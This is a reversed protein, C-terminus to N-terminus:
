KRICELVNTTGLINTKITDMPSDYSKRVLPQAALHFVIEPNYEIFIQNLRELDQINGRCDTIKSSVNTNQYFQSNPYEVLSFGIVKAGLKELWITLWTGKFGTHGTVLVKKDKWFNLKELSEM